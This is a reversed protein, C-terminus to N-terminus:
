SIKLTSLVITRVPVTTFDDDYKALWTDGTVDLSQRPRLAFHGVQRCNVYLSVNTPYVSLHVKNWNGENFHVSKFHYTQLPSHGTSQYYRDTDGNQVM